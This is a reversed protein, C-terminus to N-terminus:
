VRENYMTYHVTHSSDSQQICLGGIHNRCPFNHFTGLSNDLFEHFVCDVCATRANFDIQFVTSQGPKSYPVVAASHISLVSCRSELAMRSGLDLARTVEPGYPCEAEASFCKWGDSGYGLYGHIGAITFLAGPNDDFVTGDCSRCGIGAVLSRLNGHFAKEVTRRGSQLVQLATGILIRKDLIGYMGKSHRMRLNREDASRVALFCEPCASLAIESLDQVFDPAPFCCLVEDLDIAFVIIICQCSVCDSRLDVACGAIIDMDEDIASHDAAVPQEISYALTVPCGQLLPSIGQHDQIYGHIGVQQIDIDMRGLPFHADTLLVLQCLQDRLGQGASEMLGHACRLCLELFCRVVCLQAEIFVQRHDAREDLCLLRCYGIGYVFRLSERGHLGDADQVASVSQARHFLSQGHQIECGAAFADM